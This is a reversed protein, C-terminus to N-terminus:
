CTLQELRGLHVPLYEPLDRYNQHHSIMYTGWLVVKELVMNGAMLNISNLM